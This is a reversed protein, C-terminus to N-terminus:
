VSVKNFRFDAFRGTMTEMPAGAFEEGVGAIFSLEQDPDTSANGAYYWGWNYKRSDNVGPKPVPFQLGWNM